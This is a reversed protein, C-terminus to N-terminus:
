ARCVVRWFFADSHQRKAGKSCFRAQDLGAKHQKLSSNTLTGLDVLDFKYPLWLDELALRLSLLEDYELKSYKTLSCASALDLYARELNQFRQKWRTEKPNM